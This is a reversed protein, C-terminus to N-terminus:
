KKVDEFIKAICNVLNSWETGLIKYMGEEIKNAFEKREVETHRGEHHGDEHPFDSCSATCSPSMVFKQARM